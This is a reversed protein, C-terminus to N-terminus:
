SYYDQADQGDTLDQEVGIGEDGFVVNADL